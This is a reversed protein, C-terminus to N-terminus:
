RQPHEIWDSLVNEFAKGAEDKKSAFVRALFPRAPQGPHLRGIQRGPRGSKTVVDSGKGLAHPQTGLEYWRGEPASKSPGVDAEGEGGKVTLKRVIHRKLWGPYRKGINYSTQRVPAMRREERRFVEAGAALAKRLFTRQLNQSLGDLNRGLELLGIVQVDAM